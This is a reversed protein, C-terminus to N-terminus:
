SSIARVHVPLTKRLVTSFPEAVQSRVLHRFLLGPVTQNPQRTACQLGTSRFAGAGGQARLRMRREHLVSLPQSPIYQFNSVIIEQGSLYKPSAGTGVYFNMHLHVDGPTPVPFANPTYTWSNILTNGSYSSFSLSNTSWNVFHTTAGTAGITFQQIDTPSSYPQVVYQANPSSGGGWRSFELDWERNSQQSAQADWTFLGLTLNPDLDNLSSSINFSYTGYGLTQTTFIEASCWGNGYPCSSVQLHLNGSADIYNNNPWVESFRTSYPVVTALGTSTSFQGNSDPNPGSCNPLVAWGLDPVFAFLLISATNPQIGLVHGTIPGIQGWPPLSDIVIGPATSQTQLVFGSMLLSSVGLLLRRM